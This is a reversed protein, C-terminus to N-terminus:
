QLCISAVQPECLREYDERKICVSSSHKGTQMTLYDDEHLQRDMITRMGYLSGVPPEAGLECGPFLDVMEQETALRVRREHLLDAVRDLDVHACAPVVCMAYNKRGKVIVPKAVYYGSVHETAALQQSTFTPAHVSRQFQIGHENLLSELRM